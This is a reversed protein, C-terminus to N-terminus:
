GHLKHYAVITNMIEKFAKYESSTEVCGALERIFSIVQKGEPSKQPRAEMYALKPLVMYFSGLDEEFDEKKVIQLINRIQTYTINRAYAKMMDDTSQIIERIAKSSSSDGISLLEKYSKGEFYRGLLLNSNTPQAM